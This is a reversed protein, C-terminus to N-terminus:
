GFATSLLHPSFLIFPPKLLATRAFLGTVSPWCLPIRL